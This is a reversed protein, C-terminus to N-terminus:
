ESEKQRVPKQAVRAYSLTGLFDKLLKNPTFLIRAKKINASNYAAATLSGKGSLGIRFAGLDSLRVIEGASLAEMIVDELAALVALTDAKTVTCTKQIRVAMEQVTVDGSAQAQAYFLPPLDLDQPNKRAVVSYTVERAM